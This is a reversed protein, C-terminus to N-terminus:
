GLETLCLCTCIAYTAVAMQRIATNYSEGLDIHEHHPPITSPVAVINHVRLLDLLLGLDRTFSALPRQASVDNTGLMIVAYEADRLAFCLTGFNINNGYTESVLTAQAAAQPDSTLPMNTGARDCGCLFNDTRIGSAATAGRNGGPIDKASYYWGNKIAFNWPTATDWETAHM